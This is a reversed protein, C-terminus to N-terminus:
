PIYQIGFQQYISQPTNIAVKYDMPIQKQFKQVTAADEDTIGVIELKSRYKAYVQNLHPISKRCPPCWTAWFEVLLPRQKLDAPAGLYNLSLTPLQGGVKAVAIQARVSALPLGILLAACSVIIIRKM